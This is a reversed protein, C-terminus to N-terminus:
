HNRGDHGALRATRRPLHPRPTAYARRHDTGSAPGGSAPARGMAAPVKQSGYMRKVGVAQLQGETQFSRALFEVTNYNLQRREPPVVVLHSSIARILYDFRAIRNSGDQPSDIPEDASNAPAGTALPDSVSQANGGQEGGQDTECDM